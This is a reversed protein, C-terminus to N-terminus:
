LLVCVKVLVLRIVCENLYDDSRALLEYVIGNTIMDLVVSTNIKKKKKQRSLSSDGIMMAPLYHWIHIEWFSGKEAFDMCYLDKFAVTYRRVKSTYVLYTAASM